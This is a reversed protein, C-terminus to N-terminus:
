NIVGELTVKVKLKPVQVFTESLMQFGQMFTSTIARVYRSPRVQVCVGFRFFITVAIDRKVAHPSWLFYYFM